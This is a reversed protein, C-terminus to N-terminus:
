MEGMETKKSEKKTEGKEESGKMHKKYAAELTDKRKKKAQDQVSLAIAVAQNHPKGAKEETSINKGIAKDSKSKILM